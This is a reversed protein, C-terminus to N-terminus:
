EQALAVMPDVRAARRAPVYASVFSVALLVLAAGGVAVPDMTGVGWLLGALVRSLAAAGALGLLLAAGALLMGRRVV